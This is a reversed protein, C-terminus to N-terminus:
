CTPVIKEATTKNFKTDTSIEIELMFFYEGWLFNKLSVDFAKSSLSFNQKGNEKM